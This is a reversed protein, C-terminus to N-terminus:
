IKIIHKNRKDVLSYAEKLYSNEEENKGKQKRTFNPLSYTNSRFVFCFIISSHAFFLYINDEYKFNM